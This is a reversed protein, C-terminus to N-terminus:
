ASGRSIATRNMPKELPRGSASVVPVSCTQCVRAPTLRAVIPKKARTPAAPVSAPERRLRNVELANTVAIRLTEQRLPKTLYDVAGHRMSLVAHEISSYGTMIIVPIEFGQQRLAELLDLGTADPMRYDSLILDISQQALVKLGENVSAALIAQHGFEALTHELTVGVSPEDDICLITSM